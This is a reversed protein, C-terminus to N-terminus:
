RPIGVADRAALEIPQHSQPVRELDTSPVNVVVSNLLVTIIFLDVIPTLVWFQRAQASVLSTGATAIIVFVLLALIEKPTVKRRRWAPYISLIGLVVIFMNPIMYYYTRLRQDVYTYPYDFLLRGINNLWNTFYKLPHTVINHIAERRFADDREISPLKAVKEYFALHNEALKPNARIQEIFQWDGLEDEYPTAMWYLQMGGVNGWYFLKGTLSYTYLPYPLCVLFAIGCVAMAKKLVQSRKVLMFALGAIILCVVIVYGFLVKTLALYGLYCGALLQHMRSHTPSQNLKCFHYTLGAVLLTTLTEPLMYSLLRLFPPYLGFLYSLLLVYRSSTYLRLTHYFYIVAFFLFFANLLKVALWPAKLLVFPAMIISYGPGWWLDINNAPTYYGHTLNIAHSVYGGEDGFFDSRSTLVILMIYIVLLPSLRLLVKANSSM